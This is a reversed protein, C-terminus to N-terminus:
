PLRAEAKAVPGEGMGQGEWLIEALDKVAVAEGAEAKVGDTLMQLCYPCGTAVVAAGTAVAEKARVRNVRTGEESSFARGGGGGCCFSDRGHREIEVFDAAVEAMVARPADFVRNYRGLYCPDHYTVRETRPVPPLRGEALVRALYESHHLVPVELGFARYEVKLQQLCHPCLVVITEPAVAKLLEATARATLDYLYEQGARRAPDGTCSEREGLVVFDEGAALMLRALAAAVRQARPDFAAACGVWLLTHPHMGPEWVRVGPIDRVWGSRTASAGRFPHGREEIGAVAEALGAPVAGEEMARFRRMALIKPVHEIDVPCVEMCARCTTCAYLTETRIAETLPGEPHRHMHERLDLILQRPSLPKGTNFAPCVEDCRGCETCADLDILDKVTLDTLANAGLREDREFDVAPPMPREEPDSYFIAVPAFFIHRLKSYPWSAMFAFALLLHFWWLGHHIERAALTSLGLDGYLRALAYGVFSYAGWPDHTAYIRLSQLLFGTILVIFLSSPLFFDVPERRLVEPRRVYRQWLFIAVAFTAVLGAVDLTFSEFWLYFPGQMVPLGLDAKMAVVITGVTLLAYAFVLALHASGTVRRRVVRAQLVGHSVLRRLRPGAPGLAVPRGRRWEAIHRYFGYVFVVALIAFPIYLLSHEPINWYIQRHPIGV